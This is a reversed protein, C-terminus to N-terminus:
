SISEPAMPSGAGSGGGESSSSSTGGGASASRKTVRLRRMLGVASATQRRLYAVLRNRQGSSPMRVESHRAGDGASGGATPLGSRAADGSGRGVVANSAQGPSGGASRLAGAGLQSGGPSGAGGDRPSGPSSPSPSATPSDLPMGRPLPPRFVSGTRGMRRLSQPGPLVLGPVAAAATSAMGPVAGTPMWLPGAAAAAAALSAAAGGGATFSSLGLRSPRGALAGAEGPPQQFAALALQPVMAFQTLEAPTPARAPGLLPPGLPALRMAALERPLPLSTSAVKRRPPEQGPAFELDSGRRTPRGPPLLWGSIGTAAAPPSQPSGAEAMEADSPSAIPSATGPSSSVTMSGSAGGALCHSCKRGSAATLGTCRCGDSGGNSPDHALGPHAEAEAAERSAAEEAGEEEVIAAATAMDALLYLAAATSGAPTPAPTATPQLRLRAARGVAPAALGATAAACEAALALPPMSASRDLAAMISATRQPHLPPRLRAQLHMQVWRHRLLQAASPRRAPDLQLATRVFDAWPSLLLHRPFKVEM